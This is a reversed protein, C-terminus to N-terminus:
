LLRGSVEALLDGMRLPKKLVAGYVRHGSDVPYGSLYVIQIDPRM